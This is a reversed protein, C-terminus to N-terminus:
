AIIIKTCVGILGFNNNIDDIIYQNIDRKDKEKSRLKKYYDYMAQSMKYEIGVPGKNTDSVKIRPKKANKIMLEQFEKQTM